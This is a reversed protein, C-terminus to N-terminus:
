LEQPNENVYDIAEQVTFCGPARFEQGCVHGKKPIMVLTNLEPAYRHVHLGLVEQPKISM